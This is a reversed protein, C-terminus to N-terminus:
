RGYERFFRPLQLPGCREIPKWEDTRLWAGNVRGCERDKAPDFHLCEFEAAFVDADARSAFCYLRYDEQKGNPWKATVQQTSPRPEFRQCYRALLDYNEMCCFDNPLAVQYPQNQRIHWRKTNERTKASTM